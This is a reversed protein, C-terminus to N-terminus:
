GFKNVLVRKLPGVMGGDFVTPEDDRIRFQAFAYRRRRSIKM